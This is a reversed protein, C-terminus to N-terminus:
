KGETFIQDCYDCRLRGNHLPELEGIECMVCLRIKSPKYELMEDHLRKQMIRKDGVFGMRNREIWPVFCELIRFGQMMGARYAQQQKTM